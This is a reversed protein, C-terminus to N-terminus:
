RQVTVVVENRRLFWPTWPPDFRAYRVTGTAELGAEAVVALLEASRKEFSRRSWRGSFGLAAATHAPVVRTHVTPDSPDPLDEVGMQAPMVFGVVYRGGEPEEQLVPATMAVKRSARNHGGIFRALRPFARNGAMEFPGGVETEAVVHDPYHRVEFDPFKELVEYIQQETM